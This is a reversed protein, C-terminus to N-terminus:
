KCSMNFDIVYENNYNFLTVLNSTYVKKFSCMKDIIIRRQDADPYSKGSALGNMRLYGVGWSWSNSMYNPVLRKIFPLKESILMYTNSNPMTGNIVILPNQQKSIEPQILNIIQMRRHEEAKLASSFSSIMMLCFLFYPVSAYKIINYKDSRVLLFPIILSVSAHISTRPTFWPSALLINSGPSIIIMSLIFVLIMTANTLNIKGRIIMVIVYIFTCSLIPIIYYLLGSSILPQVLLEYFGSANKSLGYYIGELGLTKDRGNFSLDLARSSVKYLMVSFAFLVISKISFLLSKSISQNSRLLINISFLISASLYVFASSQYIFLSALLCLTSSIVFRFTNNYFIFPICSFLISISIPFSDFRYALVEITMPFILISSSCILLAVGSFGLSRSIIYGSTFILVAAFIQSFPFIDTIPNGFSFINYIFDALPRGDIDWGYGLHSRNIDDVYYIGGLIIPLIYLIPIMAFYSKDKM